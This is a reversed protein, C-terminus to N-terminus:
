TEHEMNREGAAIPLGRQIEPSERVSSLSQSWLPFVEPTEVPEDDDPTKSPLDGDQWQHANSRLFHRSFDSAPPHHARGTHIAEDTRNIQKEHDLPLTLSLSVRSEITESVIRSVADEWTRVIQLSTSSVALCTLNRHSHLQHVCQPPPFDLPIFAIAIGFLMNPHQAENLPMVSGAVM